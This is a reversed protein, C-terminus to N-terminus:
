SRVPLAPCVARTTGNAEHIQIETLNKIQADDCKNKLKALISIKRESLKNQGAEELKRKKRGENEEFFKFLKQLVVEVGFQLEYNDLEVGQELVACELDM